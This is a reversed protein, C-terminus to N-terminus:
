NICKSRTSYTPERVSRRKTKIETCLSTLKTFKFPMESARLNPKKGWIKPLVMGGSRWQFTGLVNHVLYTGKSCTPTVGMSTTIAALVLIVFCDLPRVTNEKIILCDFIISKLVVM